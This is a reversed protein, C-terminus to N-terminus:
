FTHAEVVDGPNINDEYKSDDAQISGRAGCKKTWLCSEHPNGLKTFDFVVYSERNVFYDIVECFYGQIDDENKLITQFNLIMFNQMKEKANKIAERLTHFTFKEVKHSCIGQTNVLAPAFQEFMKEKISTIWLEDYKPKKLLIKKDYCLRIEQKTDSYLFYSCFPDEDCYQEAHNVSLYSTKKSIVNYYKCDLYSKPLVLYKKKKSVHEFNFGLIIEAFSLFLCCYFVGQIVRRM